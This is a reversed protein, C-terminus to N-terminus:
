SEYKPQKNQEKKAKKMKSLATKLIEIVGDIGDQETIELTDPNLTKIPLSSLTGIAGMDALKSALNSINAVYLAGLMSMINRCKVSDSDNKNFLEIFSTGGLMLANGNISPFKFGLVGDAVYCGDLTGCQYGSGKYGCKRITANIRMDTIAETNYDPNYTDPNFELAGNHKDIAGLMVDVGNYEQGNFRLKGGVLNITAYYTHDKEKYVRMDGAECKTVCPSLIFGKENLTKVLMKKTIRPM